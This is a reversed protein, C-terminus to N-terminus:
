SFSFFDYDPIEIETNYFQDAKPLINNIATGGYCIVKKRRIFNEVINIIKKVEGSNAVARGSREEAKDIASRLIALECEQFNMTKDCINKM